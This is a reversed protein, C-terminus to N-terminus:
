MRASAIATGGVSYVDGAANSQVVFRVGNITPSSFSASAVIGSNGAGVPGATTPATRMIAPWYVFTEVFYGAGGVYGRGTCATKCYYRSCAALERATDPVQFPPPLGTNGPDVYLGVDTIMFQNGATAMGNTINTPAFFNGAQWVGTNATLYTAGCSTFIGLYLGVANDYTWTGTPDPPVVFSFEKFGATVEAASFTLPFVCSRNSAGNRLSLGFTGAVTSSMRLRIVAPKAGTGGWDLGLLRVGELPQQMGTYQGAAMATDAATVNLRCATMYPSRGGDAGAYQYGALIGDSGSVLMWQDVFYAGSTASGTQGYEQSVVATPNVVRNYTDAVTLQSPPSAVIWAVGDWVYTPGGSPTFATGPTPSAPFDFAV